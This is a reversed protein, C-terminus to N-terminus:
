KQKQSAMIQTEQLAPILSFLSPIDFDYYLFAKRFVKEILIIVQQWRVKGSQKLGQGLARLSAMKQSM